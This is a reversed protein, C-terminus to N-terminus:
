QLKFIGGSANKFHIEGNNELVNELLCTFVKPHFGKGLKKECRFVAKRINDNQCIYFVAQIDPFLYYDALKDVLQSESKHSREWEIPIWYEGKKTKLHALLDTNLSIFATDLKRRGTCDTTQLINETFVEKVMQCKELRERIDVLALDHVVSSSKLCPRKIAFELEDKICALAKEKLFYHVFKQNGMLAYNKVLYGNKVLKGLRHTAATPCRNPFYKERIHRELLTRQEYLGKFIAKDRKTILLSKKKM